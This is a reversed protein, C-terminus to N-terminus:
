QKILDRVTEVLEDLDFPKRIGILQRTKLEYVPLNASMIAAPVTRYADMSHLIDYLQIGTMGPLQWDILFVIPPCESVLSLAQKGSTVLKVKYPLEDTLVMSVLQGIEEDDEIVFITEEERQTSSTHQDRNM